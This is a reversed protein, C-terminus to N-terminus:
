LSLVYRSQRSRPQPCRCCHLRSVSSLHKFDCDVTASIAASRGACLSCACRDAVFTLNSANRRAGDCPLNRPWSPLDACLPPGTIVELCFLVALSEHVAGELIRAHVSGACAPPEGYACSTLSPPLADHMSDRIPLWVSHTSLLAATYFFVPDAGHKNCRADTQARRQDSSCPVCLAWQQSRVTGHSPQSRNAGPHLM